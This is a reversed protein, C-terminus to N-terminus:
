HNYDFEVTMEGVVPTCLFQAPKYHSQEAGAMAWDDIGEVGSSQTLTPNVPHGASDLYVHVFATQPKNGFDGLDPGERTLLVPPEYASGCDLPPLAQRFVAPTVPAGAMSPRQAAVSRGFLSQVENVVTPCPTPAAGDVGVTDVFAYLVERPKDFGVLIAPAYFKDSGARRLLANREVTVTYAGDSSILVITASVTSKGDAFLSVVYHTNNGLKAPEDLDRNWPFASVDGACFPNSWSSTAPDDALVPRTVALSSLLIAAPLVAWPRNSM